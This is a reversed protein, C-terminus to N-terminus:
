SFFFCLLFASFVYEYNYALLLYTKKNTVLNNFVDVLTDQLGEVHGEWGTCTNENVRVGLLRHSGMEKEIHLIKSHVQM